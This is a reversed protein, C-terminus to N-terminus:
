KSNIWSHKYMPLHFWAVQKIEWTNRKYTIVAALDVATMQKGYAAMASGPVGNIVVEMHATVDDGQMMPNNNLAPFAPPMGSGDPM